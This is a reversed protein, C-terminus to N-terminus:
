PGKVSCEAPNNCDGIALLRMTGDPQPAAAVKVAGDSYVQESNAQTAANWVGENPTAWRSADVGVPLGIIEGGSYAIAGRVTGSADNVQVFRLGPREFVYVHYHPSASVDTANPWSQGLGTGAGTSAQAMATGGCSVALLAAISLTTRIVPYM